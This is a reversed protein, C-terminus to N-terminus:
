QLIDEPFNFNKFSNGSAIDLPIEYTKGCMLVYKLSYKPLTKNLVLQAIKKLHKAAYIGPMPELYENKAHIFAFNEFNANKLLYQDVLQQLIKLSVEQMDCALILLDTEPYKHHVSLIGGLPGPIEIDDVILDNVDFIASYAATQKNNISLFTPIRLFLLKECVIQAWTKGNSVILGKDTGMRSSRGGCLVVGIIKEGKEM